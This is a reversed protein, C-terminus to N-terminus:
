RDADPCAAGGAMDMLWGGFRPESRHDPQRHTGAPLALNIFGTETEIQIDVPQGDLYARWGPFYYILFRARGAQPVDLTYALSTPASELPQARTGAPLGNRDLRDPQQGRSLAAALPPQKPISKVWRPLYEGLTTTGVTRTTLEFRAMDALDAGYRVFPGFPYLYVMVGLLVALSGVLPWIRGADGLWPTGQAPDPSDWLTTSAGALGALALNALGLLRWPFEAVALLPIAEWVPQSVPLMMILSSGLVMLCFAGPLWRAPTRWQKVLGAGGILALALTVPALSFPVWPNAARADPAQPLALLDDWSLFRLYFPSVEVYISEVARTFHREILAPLWFFATWDLGLLLGTATARAARRRRPCTPLLIAAFLIAVPTVALAHFLHSLIIVGYILALLGADRGRALRISREIAWLLWPFLGIALYQPYNGGYLLVERLAFPALTYVAAALLGARGGWLSRAFLYAGLAYALASLMVLGKLSTEWSLGAAHLALPVLYPLPPAFIWLPLGHGYALDPAWRPFPSGGPLSRALELTRYFHIPTDATGPLGPQLLPWIVFLAPWLALWLGPDVRALASKVCAAPTWWAYTKPLRM